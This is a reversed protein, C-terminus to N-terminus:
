DKNASQNTPRLATAAAHPTRVFRNRGGSCSFPTHFKEM